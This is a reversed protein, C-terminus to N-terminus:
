FINFYVYRLIEDEGNRLTCNVLTLYIWMKTCGTKQVKEDQLPSYKDFLLEANEEERM